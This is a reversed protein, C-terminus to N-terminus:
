CSFRAGFIAPNLNLQQDLEAITNKNNIQIGNQKNINSSIKKLKKVRFLVDLYYIQQIETWYKIIYLIALGINFVCLKYVYNATKNM